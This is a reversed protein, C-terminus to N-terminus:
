ADVETNLFFFDLRYNGVEQGLAFWGKALRIEGSVEGQRDVYM